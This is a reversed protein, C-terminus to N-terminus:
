CSFFIFYRDLHSDAQCKEWALPMEGIFIYVNFYFYLIQMLEVFLEFFEVWCLFLADSFCLDSLGFSGLDGSSRNCSLYVFEWLSFGGVKAAGLGGFGDDLIWIRFCVWVWLHFDGGEVVGLYTTLTCWLRVEGSMLLLMMTSKIQM